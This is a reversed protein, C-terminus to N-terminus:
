IGISRYFLLISVQAYIVKKDQTINAPFPFKTSLAELLRVQENSPSMVDLTLSLNLASHYASWGPPIFLVDGPELLM